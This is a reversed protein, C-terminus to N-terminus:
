KGDVVCELYKMDMIADYTVENNHVALVKKIEERLIKQCDQNKALEYLAFTLTSSSTEFSACHFLWMQAIYESESLTDMVDKGKYNRLNESKDTLRLITNAIDDRKDNSKSRYEKLGEFMNKVYETTEKTFIRFNLNKLINRPINIVMGNKYFNWQYDFFTRAHKILDTNQDKMTNSDLGFGCTSIVDTTFKALENKINIGKPSTQQCIELRNKLEESLDVIMLFMKRMKASTFAQPLKTRIDKWRNGEMNFIHVSLPDDKENVYMGHNPFNDADSIIIHKIIEPDVPIYFPRNLAYMGGHKVGMKKFHLYIEGFSQGYTWERTFIKLMNGFPVIPTIYPINRKKWYKFTQKFYWYIVTLLVVFTTLLSTTVANTELM